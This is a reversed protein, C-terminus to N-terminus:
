CTTVAAAILVNSGGGGSLVDNGAGGDLITTVTVRSDIAISDNGRPRRFPHHRDVWTSRASRSV